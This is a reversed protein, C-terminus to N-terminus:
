YVSGVSSVHHWIVATASRCVILYSNWSKTRSARPLFNRQGCAWERTLTDHTNPTSSTYYLMWWWQVSSHSPTLFLFRNSTLWYLLFDCEEPINMHILSLTTQEIILILNHNIMIHKHFSSFYKHIWQDTNTYIDLSILRTNHPSNTLSFVWIVTFKLQTNLLHM